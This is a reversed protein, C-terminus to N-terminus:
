EIEIRVGEPLARLFLRGYNKNCLRSDLLTIHGHDTKSRILRGVGQRFKLIAEPLSYERFADKGNARMDQSRAEVLPDTPTGFPLKTVIVHTLAEGPVDVGMWFSSTGLLVSGRQRRFRNLMDTRGIGDGQALLPWNEQECM